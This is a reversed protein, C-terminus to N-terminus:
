IYVISKRPLTLQLEQRNLAHEGNNVILKLNFKLNIQLEKANFNGIM